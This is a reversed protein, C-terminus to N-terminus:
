GVIRVQLDIPALKLEAFVCLAPCCGNGSAHAVLTNNDAATEWEMSAQCLSAAERDIEKTIFTTEVGLAVLLVIYATPQSEIPERGLRPLLNGSQQISGHMSCCTKNSAKAPTNTSLLMVCERMCAHTKQNWCPKNM